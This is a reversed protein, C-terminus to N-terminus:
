YSCFSNNKFYEIHTDFFASNIKKLLQTQVPRTGSGVDRKRGVENQIYILDPPIKRQNWIQQFLNKKFAYFLNNVFGHRFYAKVWTWWSIKHM